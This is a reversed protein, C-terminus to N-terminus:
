ATSDILLCIVFVSGIGTLLALRNKNTDLDNLGKLWLGDM